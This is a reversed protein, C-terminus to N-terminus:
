LEVSTPGMLMSAIPARGPANFRGDGWDRRENITEHQLFALFMQLWRDREGALFTVEEARSDKLALYIALELNALEAYEDPWLSDFEEDVDVADAPRKSFFFTLNGSTPDGANGAGYYVQGWRYVAPEGDEATRRDFPVVVVEDGNPNEIRFVAEATSPRAWGGAAFAVTASDGFFFPNVRAGIQFYTRIIRNAVALLENEEDAIKQPQNQSSKAYAAIFIDSSTM